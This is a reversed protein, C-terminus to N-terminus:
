FPYDVGSFVAAGEAGFGIDVYGVIFPRAIGRLGIGGAVHLQDLPNQGASHFVRGADIFPAAELTVQQSFLNLSVIQTRLELSASFLNRDIFRGEGFGRLPQREGIVSQEGGLSSLAWFPIQQAGPMYRLAAHGALTFREGVPLLHRADLGLESYSFSSLFARDAGGVFATLLTGHTPITPSDRTDYSVTLRTLFDNGGGLVSAGVSHELVGPEIDVFRPRLRLSVQLEPTVNRGLSAEAYGREATFNGQNATTTNNGIGFFLPTASRDYLLRASFSWAGSRTIGTAHLADFEREIKQKAGAVLYSETDESPYDFVRFRAGYGLSPHFIFDPAYLRSIEGGEGTVLYVPLVGYSTGGFPDTAIEPVPIFPSNGFDFWKFLGSEQAEAPTAGARALVLILLALSATARLLCRSVKVSIGM